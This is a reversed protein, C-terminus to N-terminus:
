RSKQKIWTDIDVNGLYDTLDAREEETMKLGLKSRRWLIDEACTAFEHAILYRIEADYLGAGYEKGLDRVSKADGLLLVARTGYAQVLRNRLAIPIWPYQATVRQRLAEVGDIPFDGGPLAADQTWDGKMQPFFPRLKDMAHGALKRYTTLKGGFVSLIPAAQGDGGELDFVYDRTVVSASAAQDDYLPRVGAYSWIIDDRTVPTKFYDNAAACLYDIEESSIEVHGPDKDWETDTTGILTYDDEYPMAFIIRGDASQFIYGHKGEYLQKTVIHSGKVLRVAAHNNLRGFKGLIREVWPGAANIVMKAKVQKEEGHSDKLTATWHDAARNLATCETRTYIDAGREAADIANAVVLRADDAWCDSYEFGTKLEEKLAAGQLSNRLNLTKTGPLVARKALHDYLFLGIRLMWKPRMGKLVPLVIRMPWIIHPAARLLIEREGLSERVLRFEYNELYRLGGHILKSSASSTHSALDDKECLAVSLGRGAADRAIGVGNIGGGIVLIDYM